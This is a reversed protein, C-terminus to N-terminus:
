RRPRACRQLLAEVMPSRLSGLPLTPLRGWAQGHQRPYPWGLAVHLVPQEPCLTACAELLAEGVRPLWSVVVVPRYTVADHGLAQTLWAKAEAPQSHQPYPVVRHHALGAQNLWSAWASPQAETAYHPVNAAEPLLWHWTHTEAQQRVLWDAVNPQQQLLSAVAQQALGVAKAQGQQYLAQLLSPTAATALSFTPAEAPALRKTSAIRRLAEEHQATALGDLAIARQVETFLPALTAATDRFILVDCGANLALLTDGVPENRQTIAGMCMDDSFRVGQFGLGGFAESYTLKVTALQEDLSSPLAQRQLTPYTGHALMVAPLGEAIATAFTAAEHPNAHLTPLAEHSDVEGWGHGPFHKGVPLVGQAQLATIAQRAAMTVTDAEQGYARMAVIPNAPNLNVDLLPAMNVNFGLLSLHTAQLTTAEHVLGTQAQVWPSPVSPFLPSRLREVQGGEQDIALWLPHHPNAAAAKAMLRQHRERLARLGDAAPPLVDLAAQFVILGALGEALAADQAEGEAPDYGLMLRHYLQSAVDAYKGEAQYVVGLAMTEDGKVYV